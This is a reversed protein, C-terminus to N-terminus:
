EAAFAETESASMEILLIQLCAEAARVHESARAYAGIEGDMEIDALAYRLNISALEKM